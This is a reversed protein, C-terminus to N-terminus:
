LSFLTLQLFSICNISQSFLSHPTCDTMVAGRQVSKSLELASSERCSVEPFMWGIRGHARPSCPCSHKPVQLEEKERSPAQLATGAGKLGGQQMRHAREKGFQGQPMGPHSSQGAMCKACTLEPRAECLLGM